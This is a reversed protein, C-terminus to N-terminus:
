FIRYDAFKYALLYSLSVLCLSVASKLFGVATAVDFQYNGLGMRYVMTDLIDGTSYVSPNYMNFIQDFGANLLRGMSLTGVLVMIPVIGPVTIHWIKQFRNACDIGAAEYLSPDISTLAAMYIITSYGFSKWVDTVVMTLPFLNRDGLFNFPGIGVFELLKNVAGDTPNLINIFVGSIIIWSIFHPLYIMTQVTKKFRERRIENLLIAVAIPIAFGAALKMLSISITNWIVRTFNPNAFLYRFNDLGNWPSEFIGLAFNYKKFAITLGYLPGYHYILVLILAPVAMLYLSIDVHKRRARRGARGHVRGRARMDTPKGAQGGAERRDAGTKALADM